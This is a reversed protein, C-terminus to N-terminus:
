VSKPTGKEQNFGKRQKPTRGTKFFHQRATHVTRPSPISFSHACSVRWALPPLTVREMKWQRLGVM